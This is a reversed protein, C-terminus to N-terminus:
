ILFLPSAHSHSNYRGRSLPVKNNLLTPSPSAVRTENNTTNNSDTVMIHVDKSLFGEVQGGLEHIRRSIRKKLDEERIDIYFTKETFVKERFDLQRRVQSSGDKKM